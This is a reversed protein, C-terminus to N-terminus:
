AAVEESTRNGATLYARLEPITIGRANADTPHVIEGLAPALPRALHLVIEREVPVLQLPPYLLEIM